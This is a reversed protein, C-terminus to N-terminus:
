KSYNEILKDAQSDGLERAKELNKIGEEKQGKMCLAVGLLLYGDSHNPALRICEKSTEIAEDAMGVRVQLSAKEAYYLEHDPDIEIARDIDNLAQQYLRGGVETQFRLYYFNDNVSAQMLKEYENLDAVAKRHQRADLLAQARALIYPAAEKLYPQSFMAVCSDLLAIQGLTDALAAKCRSGEYFLEASRLESNYLATYLSAAEDYKKQAYLIVAQQHRYIAMPQIRDAEQAEALAKDLSWGDFIEQSMYIEKQYILRSYNYHAEDKKTAVRIAQEMDQAAAKFDRAVVENQARYAYGDPANPFRRIFDDTLQAFTASDLSSQGMYLTLIAQELDRPLDKKIHTSRLTPDNLSLGNINLSDAFRASVAYSLTDGQRSPQQMLGIVEGVDNILPCSVTGEPMSLAVTYYSHSNTGFNESKRITGEPITKTERYPLLWVTTGVTANTSAISAPTTKKTAVRFKAVDYTANAGLMCEVAMEKGQADVVVATAANRFPSFSSVGEGDESTFFGCSTGILQGDTAFTKLTFVAKTAKKVWSPQALTIMPNIFLLGLVALLLHLIKRIKM